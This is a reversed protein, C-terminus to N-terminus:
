GGGEQFALRLYDAVLVALVCWVIIGGVIWQWM